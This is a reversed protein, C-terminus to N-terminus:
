WLDKARFSPFLYAISILLFTEIGVFLFARLSSYLQPYFIWWILDGVGVLLAVVFLVFAVRAKKQSLFNKCLFTVIELNGLSDYNKQQGSIQGFTEQDELHHLLDEKLRDKYPENKLQIDIVAAIDEKSFRKQKDQLQM